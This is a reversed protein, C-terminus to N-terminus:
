GACFKRNLTRQTPMALEVNELWFGSETLSLQILYILCVVVNNTTAHVHVVVKVVM